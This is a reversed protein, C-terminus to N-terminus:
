ETTPNFKPLPRPLLPLRIAIDDSDEPPTLFDLPPSADFLDDAERDDESEEPEPRPPEGLAARLRDDEVETVSARHGKYISWPGNSGEDDKANPGLSYLLFGDSTRRYVVANGYPDVTQQALLSKDIDSLSDPYSGLTARHVALATAIQQLQLEANARDVSDAMASFGPVLLSAIANGVHRSRADRSLASTVVVGVTPTGAADIEAELVDIAANREQYPLKFNDTLKDYWENGLTLMTNWDMALHSLPELPGFSKRLSGPNKTNSKRVGALDLVGTVFLLREHEDITEGMSDHPPLSMLFTHIQEALEPTLDDSALINTTLRHACMECAIPIFRIRASYAPALQSLSYIAKCDAWAGATDGSGLRMYGRILLSRMATRVSMMSSDFISFLPIEPDTLLETPPLYFHDKAAAQHLLDYESAYDEVWKAVLPIGAASWPQDQIHGFLDLQIWAELDSEPDSEELGGEETEEDQPVESAAINSGQNLGFERKYHKLLKECFAQDIDLEKMGDQPPIPMGLEKCLPAQGELPVQAPWLARLFPIAGNNEPTVGQKMKGLLYASYDPLGDDALPATIVTTQPSVIIPAPPGAIQWAFYAVFVLLAVGTAILLRKRM